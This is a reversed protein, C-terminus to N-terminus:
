DLNGLAPRLERTFLDFFYRSRAWCRGPLPSHGQEKIWPSAALDFGVPEARQANRVLELRGHEESM